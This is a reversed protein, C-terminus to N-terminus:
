GRDERKAARRPALLRRLSRLAQYHCARANEETIELMEAIERYPLEFDLRLSLVARQRPPLREIAARLLATRERREAEEAPDADGPPDSPEVLTEDEGGGTPGYLVRPNRAREFHRRVRNMAITALWSRLREPEKLRDIARFARLFTDQFLDNVADDRGLARRLLNLVAPGHRRVLADFAPRDGRAAQEVLERDSPEM